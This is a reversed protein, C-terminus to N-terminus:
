IIGESLKFVPGLIALAFVAVFTGVIVIVIPGIISTLNKLTYRVEGLYQKSVKLSMDSL